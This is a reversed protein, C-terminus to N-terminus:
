VAVKASILTSHDGMVGPADLFITDGRQAKEWSVHLCDDILPALARAGIPLGAAKSAAAAIAGDDFELGIGDDGCQRQFEPLIHERLIRAMHGADLPPLTVITSLRGVLEEFFGYRIIDFITCRTYADAKINDRDVQPNERYAVTENLGQFAGVAIHLIGGTNIFVGRDDDNRKSLAETGEVLKLLEAQLARGVAREGQKPRPDARLKDFEDFVVVGWQEALAAIEPVTYPKDADERRGRFRPSLLGLYASALDRGVYGVDSFETANAETWIVPIANLLHRILHTKGGGSPGIVLVNQPVRTRGKAAGVMFRRLHLALRLKTTELGTVDRDMIQVMEAVTPIDEYAPPTFRM